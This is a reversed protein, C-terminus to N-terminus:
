HTGEGKDNMCYGAVLTYGRVERDNMFCYGAVPTPCLNACPRMWM